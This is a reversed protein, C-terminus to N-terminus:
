LQESAQSRRIPQNVMFRSAVFASKTRDPFMELEDESSIRGSILTGTVVAGFGKMTFVRDIPLRPLAQTNKVSAESAVNVLASKLEEIGSGNITNVAIIPSQNADLFSGRVFEAIEIRAVELTEADM